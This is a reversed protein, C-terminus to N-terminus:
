VPSPSAKISPPAAPWSLCTFTPGGNDQLPGLRPDVNCRDTRDLAAAPTDSFLNHGGSVFYNTVSLNGGVNNALVSTTLTLAGRASIGGGEDASNGSFTSADIRIM